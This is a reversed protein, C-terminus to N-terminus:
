IHILSLDTVHRAFVPGLVGHRRIAAYFVAVVRDIQEPSVDFRPPIMGGIHVRRPWPALPRTVGGSM